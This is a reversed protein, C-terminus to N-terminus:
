VARGAEETSPLDSPQPAAQFPIELMARVRGPLDESLELRARDGYLIRLRERANKLGIGKGNEPALMGSNTVSVRLTEGTRAVQLALDGGEQLRAIGHKVANEALGELLMAPIMATRAEDDIERHIRLREEFRVAELSLYAEVTALEEEMPVLGGEDDRLTARLLEALRTVMTRARAPDEEILSRLSNLCNFLFHPNIQQQLGRLQAERAAVQAKLADLEASRRRRAAHVVLYVALWLGVLGASSFTIVGSIAFLQGISTWTLQHELALAFVLVGGQFAGALVAGAALRPILKPWSLENWGGRLKQRLVHTGALAAACYSLDAAAPGPGANRFPVLVALYYALCYGGWGLVQCLWYARSSSTGAAGPKRTKAAKRKM